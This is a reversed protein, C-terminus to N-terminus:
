RQDQARIIRKIDRMIQDLTGDDEVPYYGRIAMESDILVFHSGHMLQEPEDVTKADEMYINLGDMVVARISDTPGTLFHWYGPQAKFRQSYKNLVSATDFAPDVSFSVLQLDGRSFEERTKTQLRGMANSFIPCVTKCRTFIFNAVWIKGELEASGYREDHQNTLSFGPVSGFKEPPTNLIKLTDRIVLIGLFLGLILTIPVTKAMVRDTLSPKNTPDKPM